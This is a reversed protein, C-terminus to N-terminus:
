YDSQRAINNEDVFEGLLSHKTGCNQCYWIDEEPIYIIEGKCHHKM